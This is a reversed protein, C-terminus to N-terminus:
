SERLIIEWLFVGESYELTLLHGGSDGKNNSAGGMPKQNSGTERGGLAQFDNDQSLHSLM